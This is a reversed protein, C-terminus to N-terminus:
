KCTKNDSICHKLFMYKTEPIERSASRKEQMTHLLFQAGSVCIEEVSKRRASGMKPAFTVCIYVHSQVDVPSPLLVWPFENSIINSAIGLGSLFNKVDTKPRIAAQLM